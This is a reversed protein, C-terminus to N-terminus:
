PQVPEGQYRPLARRSDRRDFAHQDKNLDDSWRSFIARFAECRRDHARRRLDSLHANAIRIHIAEHKVIRRFM